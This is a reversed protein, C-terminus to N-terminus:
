GFRLVEDIHTEDALQILAAVDISQVAARRFLAAGRVAEIGQSDFGGYPQSASVRRLLGRVVKLRLLVGPSVM